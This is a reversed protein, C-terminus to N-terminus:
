ESFTGSMGRFTRRQKKNDAMPLGGYFVVPLIFTNFCIRFDKIIDMHFCFVTFGSIRNIM